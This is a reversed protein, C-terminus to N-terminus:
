LRSSDALSLDGHFDTNAPGHIEDKNAVFNEFINTLVFEYAKSINAYKQTNVLLHKIAM